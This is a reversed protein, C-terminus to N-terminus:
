TVLSPGSFLGLQCTSSEQYLPNTAPIRSFAVTTVNVVYYAGYARKPGGLKLRVSYFYAGMECLNSSLRKNIFRLSLLSQNTLGGRAARRRSHM